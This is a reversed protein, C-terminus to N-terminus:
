NELGPPRRGAWPPPPVTGDITVHRGDLAIRREAFAKLAMPYLEYEVLHVATELEDLTAPVPVARQYIVPGSDLAAEIFHVTVGTTKVGYSWAQDIAHLGPFAPLLSPHVNLIRGAYAEVFPTSLLRLYGAGCILGVEHKDLWARVQRDYEERSCAARPDVFAAEVGARAARGLVGADAKNTVVVAIEAPAYGSACADQLAQFNTGSGSALVGVRLV